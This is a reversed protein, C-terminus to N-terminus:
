EMYERWEGPLVDFDEAMAIMGRASGPRRPQRAPQLPVLRVMQQDDTTILVIEGRLAAAILGPLQRTAEDVHLQQM